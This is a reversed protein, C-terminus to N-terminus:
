RTPTSGRVPSMGRVSSKTSSNSCTLLCTSATVSLFMLSRRRRWCWTCSDGIMMSNITFAPATTPSVMLISPAPPVLIPMSIYPQPSFPPDDVNPKTRKKASAEVPTSRHRRCEKRSRRSNATESGTKCGGYGCHELKREAKARNEVEKKETTGHARLDGKSRYGGVDAERDSGNRREDGLKKRRKSTGARRRDEEAGKRLALGGKNNRQTEIGTRRWNKCSCRSRRRREITSGRCRM